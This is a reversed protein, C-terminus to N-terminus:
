VPNSDEQSAPNDERQVKCRVEHTFMIKNQADSVVKRELQGTVLPQMVIDEGRFLMARMMAGVGACGHNRYQGVQDELRQNVGNVPAHLSSARCGALVQIRSIFVRSRVPHPEEFRHALAPQVDLEAQGSQDGLHKAHRRQRYEARHQHEPEVM